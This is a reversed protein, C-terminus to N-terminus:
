PGTYIITLALRVRKKSHYPFCPLFLFGSAPVNNGM